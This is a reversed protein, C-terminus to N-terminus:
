PPHSDAEDHPHRDPQLVNNPYLERSQLLSTLPIHPLCPRPPPPHQSLKHATHPNSPPPLPPPSPPAGGKRLIKKKKSNHKQEEQKKRQEWGSVGGSRRHRHTHKTKQANMVLGCREYPDNLSSFSVCVSVRLRCGGRELIREPIGGCWRHAGEWECSPDVFCM